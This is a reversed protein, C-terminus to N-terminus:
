KRLVFEKCFKNGKFLMVVWIQGLSVALHSAYVKDLYRISLALHGELHLGVVTAGSTGSAGDGQVGRLSETVAGVVVPIGQGRNCLRNAQSLGQRTGLGGPSPPPENFLVLAVHCSSPTNNCQRLTEM